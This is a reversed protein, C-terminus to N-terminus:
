PLQESHPPLHEAAQRSIGPLRATMVYDSSKAGGYQFSDDNLSVPRTAPNQSCLGAHAYEEM